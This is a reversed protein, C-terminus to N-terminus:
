EIPHSKPLSFQRYAEGCIIGIANSYARSSTRYLRRSIASVSGRPNIESFKVSRSRTKPGRTSQHGRARPLYHAGRMIANDGRCQSEGRLQSDRDRPFGLGLLSNHPYISRRHRRHILCGWSAWEGENDIWQRLRHTRRTRRTRRSPRGSIRVTGMNWNRILSARVSSSHPKTKFRMHENIPRTLVPCAPAAENSRNQHKKSIRGRRKRM